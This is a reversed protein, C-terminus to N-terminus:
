EIFGFHRSTREVSRCHATRASGSLGSNQFKSGEVMMQLTGPFGMDSADTNADIWDAVANQDYVLDCFEEAALITGLETAKMMSDMNQAVGAMPLAALVIAISLHKM